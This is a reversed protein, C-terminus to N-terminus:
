KNRSFVLRKLNTVIVSCNNCIWDDMGVIKLLLRKFSKRHRPGFKNARNWVSQLCTNKVQATERLSAQSILIM